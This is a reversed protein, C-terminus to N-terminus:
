RDTLLQLPLLVVTEAVSCLSSMLMPLNTWPLSSRVEAWKNQQWFSERALDVVQSAVHAPVETGNQAYPWLTSNMEGAWQIQKYSWTLGSWPVHQLDLVFENVQAPTLIISTNAMDATINGPFVNPWKPDSSLPRSLHPTSIDVLQDIMEGIILSLIVLRIGRYIGRLDEANWTRILVRLFSTAVAPPSSDARSEAPSGDQLLGHQEESEQELEGRKPAPARPAYNARSRQVVVIVPQFVAAVLFLFCLKFLFPPHDDTPSHAPETQAM